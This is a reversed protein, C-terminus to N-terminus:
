MRIVQLIVFISVAGGSSDVLTVERKKLLKGTSKATLEQLDNASKCVGIIDLFVNVFYCYKNLYRLWGTVLRTQNDLM